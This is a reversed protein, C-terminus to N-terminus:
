NIPVPLGKLKDMILPIEFGIIFRWREYNIKTSINRPQINTGEGPIDPATGIQSGSRAYSAGLIINGWPRNLDVGAAIHWIDDLLNIEEASKNVFDFLNISEEAASFDTTFSGIINVSPSVYFEGGAGFNFVSKLTEMFPNGDFYILAEEPIDIRDYSNIAAYWDFNLHIKHKKWPFGVGYSIGTATKRRNSLGDYNEAIIFDSDGSVGSLSEQYNLSASSYVAFFPLSLNVGMELDSLKWAAGIRIQGGYTRQDFDIRNTYTIVQNNALKENILIDGRGNNTYISGFISVGVSLSESLPYAWTIGFWDDRLKDRFELDTFSQSVTSQAVEPSVPILGSDYRLRIDSRQKSIISYAFKHGPLAKIDFTGALTAPLGGFQNSSLDKDTELIDEFYYRSWEYAKGGITFSPNEILGLRAPNYYTLGLDAVSGTVNGNLLVSQNGFNEFKYNGEQAHIGPAPLLLFLIFFGFVGSCASLPRLKLVATQSIQMKGYFQLHIAM